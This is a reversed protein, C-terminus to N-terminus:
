TNYSRRGRILALFCATCSDSRSRTPAPAYRCAVTFFASRYPTCQADVNFNLLRMGEAALQDIHPTPAGHLIGGVYVGLEGCGLNETLILVINPKKGTSATPSRRSVYGLAFGLSPPAASM